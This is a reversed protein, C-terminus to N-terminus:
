FQKCAAAQEKLEAPLAPFVNKADLRGLAAQVAEVDGTALPEKLDEFVALTAPAAKSVQAQFAEFQEPAKLDQVKALAASMTDAVKTAPGAVAKALAKESPKQIGKQAATADKQFTTQATTLSTCVDNWTSAYAADGSGGGTGGDDDSGGCGAMGAALAAAALVAAPRHQTLRSRM